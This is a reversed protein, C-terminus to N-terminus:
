EDGKPTKASSKKPSNSESKPEDEAVEEPQIDQPKLVFDGRELLIALFENDADVRGMTQPLVEDQGVYFARDTTNFVVVTNAVNPM